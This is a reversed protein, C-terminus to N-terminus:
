IFCFPPPDPHHTRAHRNPLKTTGRACSGVRVMFGLTRTLHAHTKKFRYHLLPLQERSCDPSASAAPPQRRCTAKLFRHCTGASWPLLPREVEHLTVNIRGTIVASPM